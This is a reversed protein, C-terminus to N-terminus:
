AVCCAVFHPKRIWARWVPYHCLPGACRVTLTAAVGAVCVKPQACKHFREELQVLCRTWVISPISLRLKKVHEAADTAVAEVVDDTMAVVCELLTPVLAELVISCRSSALLAHAHAKYWGSSLMGYRMLLAVAFQVLAARAKYHPHVQLGLVVKGVLVAVRSATEDLWTRTRILSPVRGDEATRPRAHAEDRTDDSAHAPPKAGRRAFQAISSAVSAAPGLVDENPGDGLSLCLVTRWCSMTAATVASGQHAPRLAMKYLASSIGPLFMGLVDPTRVASVLGCLADLAAVQIARHAHTAMADLLTSVAHGVFARPGPERLHALADAAPDDAPVAMGDDSVFPQFLLGLVNLAALVTDESPPQGGAPPPQLVTFCRGIWAPFTLSCVFAAGWSM